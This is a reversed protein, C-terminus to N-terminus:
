FRAEVPRLWAGLRLWAGGGGFTTLEPESKQNRLGVVATHSQLPAYSNSCGRTSASARLAWRNQELEYASACQARAARPSGGLPPRKVTSLPAETHTGRTIQVHIRAGCSNCWMIKTCRKETGRRRMNWHVLNASCAQLRAAWIRVCSLSLRRRTM